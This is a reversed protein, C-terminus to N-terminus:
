IRSRFAHVHKSRFSPLLLLNFSDLVRGTGQPNGTAARACMWGSSLVWELGCKSQQHLEVHPCPRNCDLPAGKLSSPPPVMESRAGCRYSTLTDMAPVWLPLLSPTTWLESQHQFQWLRCGCGHRVGVAAGRAGAISGKQWHKSPSSCVSLPFSALQSRTKLARTEAAQSRVRGGTTHHQGRLLSSRAWMQSQGCGKWRWDQRRGLHYGGAWGASSLVCAWALDLSELFGWLGYLSVGELGPHTVTKGLKMSICFTLCVAFVSSNTEISLFSVVVSFVILSVSIFLIGPSGQLSLPLSDVWWHLLCSKLGQNQSSGVHGPAACGFIFLIIFCLVFVWAM